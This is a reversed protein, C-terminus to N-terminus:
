LRQSIPVYFVVKGKVIVFKAAQFTVSFATAQKM